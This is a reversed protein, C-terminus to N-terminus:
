GAAATLVPIAAKAVEANKKDEATDTVKAKLDTLDAFTSSLVGNYEKQKDAKALYDGLSQITNGLVGPINLASKLEIDNTIKELIAKAQDFTAKANIFDTDTDRKSKLIEETALGEFISDNAQERAEKMTAIDFEKWRTDLTARFSRLLTDTPKSAPSSAPNNKPTEPNSM